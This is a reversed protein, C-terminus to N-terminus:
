KWIEYRTINLVRNPAGNEGPGASTQFRYEVTPPPADQFTMDLTVDIPTGSATGAPVITPRDTLEDWYGVSASKNAIVAQVNNADGAPVDFGVTGQVVISVIDGQEASFSVGDFDYNNSFSGYEAVMALDGVPFSYVLTQGPHPPEGPPPTVPDKEDKNDCGAGVFAALALGLWAHKRIQM